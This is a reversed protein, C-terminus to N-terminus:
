LAEDLATLSDIVRNVKILEYPASVATSTGLRSALARLAPLALVVSFDEVLALGDFRVTEDDSVVWDALVRDALAQQENDLQRYLSHLRDLTFSPDRLARAEQDARRRCEELEFRVDAIKM